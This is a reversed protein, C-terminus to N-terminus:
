ARQSMVDGFLLVDKAWSGRPEMTALRGAFKGQGSKIGYIEGDFKVIVLLDADIKKLWKRDADSLQDPKPVIVNVTDTTHRQKKGNKSFTRSMPLTKITLNMGHQVKGYANARFNYMICVFDDYYTSKPIRRRRPKGRVGNQTRTYLWRRRGYDFDHQAVKAGDTTITTRYFSTAVFRYGNRTKLTRMVSTLSVKRFPTVAGVIGSVTGEVSATYQNNGTRKFTILGTATTISLFSLTFKLRENLFPKVIDPDEASARHIGDAKTADGIATPEGDARQIDVDLGAGLAADGFLWLGALAALSSKLFDRRDPTASEVPQLVQKENIDM